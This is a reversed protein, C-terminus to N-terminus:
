PSDSEILHSPQGARLQSIADVLQTALATAETESMTLKMRAWRFEIRPTQADACDVLAVTPAGLSGTGFRM